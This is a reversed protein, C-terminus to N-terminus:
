FLQDLALLLAFMLRLALCALRSAEDSQLNVKLKMAFVPRNKFGNTASLTALKLLM